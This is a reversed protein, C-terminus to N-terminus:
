CILIITTIKIMIIIMIIIMNISRTVDSYSSHNM